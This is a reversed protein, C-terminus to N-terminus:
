STTRLITGILNVELSEIIRRNDSGITRNQAPNNIPKVGNWEFGCVFRNPSPLIYPEFM